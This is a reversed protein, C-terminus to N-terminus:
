NRGKNKKEMSELVHNIYNSLNVNDKNEELTLVLEEYTKPRVHGEEEIYAHKLQPYESLLHPKDKIIHNFISDVTPEKVNCFECNIYRTLNKARELNIEIEKELKNIIFSYKEELGLHKLYIILLREGLVKAEIEYLVLDYNTLHYFKTHFRSIDEEMVRDLYKMEEEHIIFEKIFNMTSIDCKGSFCNVYQKVHIFEHFMFYLFEILKLQEKYANEFYEDSINLIFDKKEKVDVSAYEWYLALPNTEIIPSFEKLQNENLSCMVKKCWQKITNKFNDPTINMIGYSLFKKVLEDIDNCENLILNFVSEM